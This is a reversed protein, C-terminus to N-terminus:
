IRNLFWKWMVRGCARVAFDKLSDRANLNEVLFLYTDREGGLHLVYGTTGM